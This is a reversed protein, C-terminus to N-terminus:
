LQQEELLRSLMADITASSVFGRVTSASTFTVYDIEGASLAQAMDASNENHYLTEYIPVDDFPICAEGLQM